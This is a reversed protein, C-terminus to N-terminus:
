ELLHAECAAARLAHVWLDNSLLQRGTPGDQRRVDVQM